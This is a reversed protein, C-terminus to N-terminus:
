PKINDRQADLGNEAIANGIISNSIAASQMWEVAVNAHAARPINAQIRLPM